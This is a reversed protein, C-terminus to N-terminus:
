VVPVAELGGSFRRPHERENFEERDGFTYITCFGASLASELALGEASRRLHARRSGECVLRGLNRAVPETLEWVQACPLVPCHPGGLGFIM